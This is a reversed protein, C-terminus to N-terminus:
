TICLFFAALFGKERSLGFSNNPAHLSPSHLAHQIKVIDTRPFFWGNNGHNVWERLSDIEM